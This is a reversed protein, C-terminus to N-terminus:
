LQGKEQFSGNCDELVQLVAKVPPTPRQDWSREGLGRIATGKLELLYVGNGEKLLFSFFSFAGLTFM